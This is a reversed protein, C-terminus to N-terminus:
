DTDATEINHNVVEKKGDDECQNTCEVTRESDLGKVMSMTVIFSGKKGLIDMGMLAEAALNSVLGVQAPGKFYKEINVVALQATFPQGVATYLTVKHGELKCSKDVLDARILTMDSRTDKVFMIERGNVYGTESILRQGISRKVFYTAQNSRHKMDDTPCQRAIHGWQKCRYCQRNKQNSQDSKSTLKAQQQTNHINM